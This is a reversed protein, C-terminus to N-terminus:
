KALAPDLVIKFGEVDRDIATEVISFMKLRAGNYENIMKWYAEDFKEPPPRLLSYGDALQYGKVSATVQDFPM